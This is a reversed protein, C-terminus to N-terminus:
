CGQFKKHVKFVSVHSEQGDSARKRDEESALHDRNPQVQFPIEPDLKLYKRTAILDKKLLAKFEGDVLQLEKNTLPFGGQESCIFALSKITKKHSTENLQKFILDLRRHAKERYAELVAEYKMQFIEQLYVAFYALWAEFPLECSKFSPDQASRSYAEKIYQIISTDKQKSDFRSIYIKTFNRVMVDSQLAAAERIKKFFLLRSRIELTLKKNYHKESKRRFSFTDFYAAKTDYPRELIALLPENFRLLLFKHLLTKISGQLITYSLLNLRDHSIIEDLMEKLSTLDREWHSSPRPPPATQAEDSNTKAEVETSEAALSPQNPKNAEIATTSHPTSAQGSGNVRATPPLVFVFHGGILPHDVRKGLLISYTFYSEM